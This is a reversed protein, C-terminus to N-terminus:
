IEGKGKLIQSHNKSKRTILLENTEVVTCLSHKCNQAKQTKLHSRHSGLSTGVTGDALKAAALPARLAAEAPVSSWSNWTWTWSIIKNLLRFILYISTCYMTVQDGDSTEVLGVSSWNPQTLSNGMWLLLEKPADDVGAPWLADDQQQVSTAIWLQLTYWPATKSLPLSPANPSTCPTCSTSRDVALCPKHM